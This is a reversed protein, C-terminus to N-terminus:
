SLSAATSEARPVTASGRRRRASAGPESRGQAHLALAQNLTVIRSRIDNEFAYRRGGPDSASRASRRISRTAAFGWIWAAELVTVKDYFSADLLARACHHGAQADVDIDQDAAFFWATAAHATAGCACHALRPMM